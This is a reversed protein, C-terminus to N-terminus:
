VYENGYHEPYETVFQLSSKIRGKLLIPGTYLLFTCYETAKWYELVDLSRPLRSFESLFHPQFNVQETSIISVKYLNKAVKGFIYHDNRYEKAFIICTISTM